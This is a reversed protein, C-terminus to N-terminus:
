SKASTATARFEGGKERWTAFRQNLQAPTIPGRFGNTQPKVGEYGAADATRQKRVLESAGNFVMAVQDCPMATRDHFAADKGGLFADIAGKGDGTLYAERLVRRRFGCMRDMTSVPHAAADFTPLSVGPALIEARSLMDTFGAALTASDGTRAARRRQDTGKGVKWPKENQDIEAADDGTQDPEEGGGAGAEDDGGEDDVLSVLTEEINALRELIQKMLPDNALQSAGGGAAAGGMDEENPDDVTPATSNLKTGGMGSGLNLTIHHGEGGGLDPAEDGSIVEGLMDPIKDLEEVLVGEADVTRLKRRLAGLADRVSAVADRVKVKKTVAPMAKEKRSVTDHDGVACTPGCRGRDVLAVHNGVINRQRGRGPALQEYEADYGASIERLKGSTIAEIAEADQVLIDAYLYDNDFHLGDGRRPNLTIGTAFEKWNAPDVGVVEGDAMPHHIVFPMGQFSSISDNAFVDDAHREVMILGDGNTEVPVEGEAYTLTGVRAIPVDECLLYGGPVIRRKPGLQASTYFRLTTAM